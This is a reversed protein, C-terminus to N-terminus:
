GVDRARNRERRAAARAHLTSSPVRLPPGNKAALRNARRAGRAQARGARYILNERRFNGHSWPEPDTLSRVWLVILVFSVTEAVAGWAGVLASGVIWVVLVVFLAWSRLRGVRRRNDTV